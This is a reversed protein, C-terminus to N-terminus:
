GDISIREFKYFYGLYYNDFDSDNWCKLPKNNILHEMEIISTYVGHYYDTTMYNWQNGTFVRNFLVYITITKKAM